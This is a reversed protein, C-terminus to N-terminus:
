RRKDGGRGRVGKENNVEDREGERRGYKEGEEM